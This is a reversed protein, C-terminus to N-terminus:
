AALKPSVDLQTLGVRRGCSGYFLIRNEVTEWLASLRVQRPGHLCFYVACPEGSRFLLDETLPFSDVKLSELKGLTEAVYRRLEEVTGFSRKSEAM